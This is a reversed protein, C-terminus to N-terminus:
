CQSMQSTVNAAFTDWFKVIVNTVSSKCGGFSLETTVNTVFQYMLSYDKKWLTLRTVNTVYCKPCFHGLIKSHCKHRQSAPIAPGLPNNQQSTQSLGYMLSYDKKWLALGQSMQSTVNQPLLTGSNKQSM